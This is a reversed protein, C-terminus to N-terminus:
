AKRYCVATSRVPTRSVHVSIGLVNVPEDHTAM